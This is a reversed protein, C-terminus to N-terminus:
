NAEAFETETEQTEINMERDKKGAGIAVVRRRINEDVRNWPEPVYPAYGKRKNGM